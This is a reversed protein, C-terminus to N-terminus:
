IHTLLFSGKNGLLCLCQNSLKGTIFHSVLSNCHSKATKCRLVSGTLMRGNTSLAQGLTFMIPNSNSIGGSTCSDAWGHCSFRMQGQFTGTWINVSEFIILNSSIHFCFCVCDILATPAEFSNIPKLRMFIHILM